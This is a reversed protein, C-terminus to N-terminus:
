SLLRLSQLLQNVENDAVDKQGYLKFGELLKELWSSQSLAFKAIRQNKELRFFGATRVLGPELRKIMFYDLLGEEELLFITLLYYVFRSSIPISLSEAANRLELDVIIPFQSNQKQGDLDVGLTLYQLGRILRRRTDSLQQLPTGPCCALCSCTFRLAQHREYRTRCEFDTNYCFTIEEGADIDQTAFISIIDGSTTPIKSNPICSHNFRSHLPFLGYGLPISLEPTTICFSNEAFAESMNTFVRSGNDRLLLFQAKQSSSLGRLAM